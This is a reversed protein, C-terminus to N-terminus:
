NLDEGERNNEFQKHDRRREVHLQRHILDDRAAILAQHQCEGKPEPKKGRDVDDRECEARM